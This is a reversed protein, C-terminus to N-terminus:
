LHGKSPAEPKPQPEETCGIHLNLHYQLSAKNPFTIHCLPCRYPKNPAHAHVHRSLAKKQSFSKDCVLCQYYHHDKIHQVYSDMHQFVHDCEQCLYSKLLVKVEKDLGQSPIDSHTATKPNAVAEEITLVENISGHKYKCSEMQGKDNSCPSNSTTCTSVNHKLTANEVNHCCHKSKDNTMIESEFELKKMCCRKKEYDDESNQGQPDINIFSDATKSDQTEETTPNKMTPSFYLSIAQLCKEVVLRMQLASATTLYAVLGCQPVEVVGTYCSLLLRRGVEVDTVVSVSLEPGEHLLFQDRLFDSAAALVVKHGHFCLRDETAASPDGLLLTIDCFLREERLTSLNLLVAAPHSPLCFQLCLESM